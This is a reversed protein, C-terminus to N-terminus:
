CSSDESWNRCACSQGDTACKGSRYVGQECTIAPGGLIHCLENEVHACMKNAVASPSNCWFCSGSCSTQSQCYSDGTSSCLQPQLVTVCRSDPMNNQALLHGANGLVGLTLIVCGTVLAVAVISSVKM